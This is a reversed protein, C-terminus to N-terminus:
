RVLKWISTRNMNEMQMKGISIKEFFVHKARTGKIQVLEGNEGFRGKGDEEKKIRYLAVNADIFRDSSSDIVTVLLSAPQPIKQVPQPIGLVRALSPDDRHASLSQISLILLSLFASFILIRLVRKQM